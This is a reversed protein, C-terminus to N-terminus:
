RELLNSCEETVVVVDHNETFINLCTSISTLEDDFLMTLVLFKAFIARLFRLWRSVTLNHVKSDLPTCFM